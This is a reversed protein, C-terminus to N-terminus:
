KKAIQTAISAVLRNRGTLPVATKNSGEPKQETDVSLNLPTHGQSALLRAAQASAATELDTQAAKLAAIQDANASITAHATALKTTLADREATVAALAEGPSNKLSEALTANEAQLTANETLAEALKAESATARAEAEAIKKSFLM